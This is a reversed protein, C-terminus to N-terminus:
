TRAANSETRGNQKQKSNTRYCPTVSMLNPQTIEIQFAFTRLFFSITFFIQKFNDTLSAITAKHGLWGAKIHKM